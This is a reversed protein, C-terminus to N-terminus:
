GNIDGRTMEWLIVTAAMAANLSDISGRMAITLKEECIKVFDPDLGHGENGIYVACGRSFDTKTLSTGDTIVSAINVVGAEAFVAATEAATGSIYVPTRAISGMASRIVKPNYLDCCDGALVVGDIGFADASRMITGVNGPDRIDALVVYKGDSIIDSVSLQKDLMRATMFMGQSSGASLKEAIQETITYRLTSDISDFKSVDFGVEAKELADDTCFFGTVELKGGRSVECAADYCSRTGEIVFERSERRAKKSSLLKALRKVTSNEKSTILM